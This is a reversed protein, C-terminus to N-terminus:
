TSRTHPKPRRAVWLRAARLGLVAHLPDDVGHILYHTAGPHDPNRAFAGDAIAAAKLYTSVNRVGQSLGLLSLAYFLQAEDDAPYDRALQEMAQSYATDRAAKPGDGYLIEVARLYGRERDTRARLARADRDAGLHSLASRGAQQQVQSVLMVLLLATKM